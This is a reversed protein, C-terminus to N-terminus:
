DDLDSFLDHTKARRAQLRDAPNICLLCLMLDILSEGVDPDEMLDWREEHISALNTPPWSPFNPKWHTLEGLGPYRAETPTGLRHFIRFLTGIESTSQFLPQLTAMEGICCGASWVDVQPGYSPAGLLIEPARYWLTVVDHSYNRAEPEFPRALGFDCIKLGEPSVLINAPKLDRHVINRLHCAAVGRLLDRSFLRVQQMPMFSREKRFGKLVKSLDSEIHEFVLTYQSPLSTHVDLLRVVNPHKLDKLLCVERIVSHPVGGNVEEEYFFLRKLAVQQGTRKHTARHVSGYQGQGCFDLVEYSEQLDGVAVGFEEAAM